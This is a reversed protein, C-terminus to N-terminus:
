FFTGYSEKPVKHLQFKEVRWITVGLKLGVGEWEKDKSAAKAKAKIEDDKGVLHINDTVTSM